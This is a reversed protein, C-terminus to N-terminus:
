PKVKGFYIRVTFSIIKFFFEFDFSDLTYKYNVRHYLLM